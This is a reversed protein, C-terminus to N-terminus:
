AFFVLVLLPPLNLEESQAALWGALWGSQRSPDFAAACLLEIESWLNIPNPVHVFLM